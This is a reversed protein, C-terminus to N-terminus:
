LLVFTLWLIFDRYVLYLVSFVVLFVATKATTRWVNERYFRRLALYTYPILLALVLSLLRLGHLRFIYMLLPLACGFFLLCWAFWHTAFILQCLYPRYRRFYLLQLCLALVPIYLYLFAKANQTIKEDVLVIAEKTSLQRSSEVTALHERVTYGDLMPQASPYVYEMQPAFVDTTKFFFFFVVNLLIFLQLPKMRTMRRGEVFETSLLGPNSVLTWLTSLVKSDLHAFHSFTQQLYRRLTFDKPKVKREGCKHCHKGKFRAGCSPCEDGPTGLPLQVGANEDSITAENATM